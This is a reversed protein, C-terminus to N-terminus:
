NGSAHFALVADWTYQQAFYMLSVLRKQRERRELDSIENSQLLQSYGALFQAITLQEYTPESGM